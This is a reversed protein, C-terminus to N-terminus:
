RKNSILMYIAIIKTTIFLVNIMKRYVSDFSPMILKRCLEGEM